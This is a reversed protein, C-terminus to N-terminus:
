EVICNNQFDYCLFTFGSIIKTWRDHEGDCHPYNDEYTYKPFGLKIQGGEVICKIESFKEDGSLPTAIKTSLREEAGSYFVVEGTKAEVTATIHENVFEIKTLSIYGCALEIMKGDSCLDSNFCIEHTM